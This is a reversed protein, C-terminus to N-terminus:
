VGIIKPDLTVGEKMDQNHKGTEHIALTNAELYMKYLNRIILSRNFHPQGKVECQRRYEAEIEFIYEDFQINRKYDEM